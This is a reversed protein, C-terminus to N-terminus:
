LFIVALLIAFVSVVSMRQMKGFKLPCTNLWYNGFLVDTHNLNSSYCM